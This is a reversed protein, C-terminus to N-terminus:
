ILVFFVCLNSDVYWNWSDCIVSCIDDYEFVLVNNILVLLLGMVVIVQLLLVEIVDVDLLDVVFVQVKVGFVCVEIVVVEVEVCLDNCYIVVDYGCWVLELVMVCGLCWVGGMVLVMM